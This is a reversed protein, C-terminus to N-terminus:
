RSRVFFTMGEKEPDGIRCLRDYGAKKVVELMKSADDKRPGVSLVVRQGQVLAYSPGIRQVALQEPQFSEAPLGLM